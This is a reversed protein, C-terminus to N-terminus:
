DTIERIIVATEDPSGLAITTSAFGTDAAREALQSFERLAHRKGTIELVPTLQPGAASPRRHPLYEIKLM